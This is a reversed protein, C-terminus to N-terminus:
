RRRRSRVLAAGLRLNGQVASWPQVAGLYQDVKDFIPELSVLVSEKPTAKGSVYEVCLPDFSIAVYASRDVARPGFLAKRLQPLMSAIKKRRIGIRTDLMHVVGLVILDHASFERAVRESPAAPLAKMEKLLAKLQDRRYGTVECVDSATLKRPRM